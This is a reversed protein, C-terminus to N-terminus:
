GGIRGKLWERWMAKQDDTFVKEVATHEDRHFQRIQTALEKVRGDLEAHIRRCQDKQEASLGLKDGLAKLHERRAEVNRWLRHEERMIAPLKDRQEDTLEARVATLFQQRLERFQKHVAEGKEKQGALERFKPEFEERIKGIKQRQEDTLKLEGAIKQLEADRMAKLTDAMRARQEDTLVKKLAEREEHRLVWLQHEIPDTRADFDAHIKRIDEKQQDSLKLKAALRELHDHKKGPEDAVFRGGGAALVIVALVALRCRVM